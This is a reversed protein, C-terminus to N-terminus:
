SFAKGTTLPHCESTMAQVTASTPASDNEQTGLGAPECPLASSTTSKKAARRVRANAERQLERTDFRTCTHNVFHRFKLGLLATAEDLLALTHDTHMRLKALGHWHACLFLLELIDHNDQKVNLLGDFVPVACQWHPVFLLFSSVPTLLCVSTSVQLLDEFDHAAFRKM